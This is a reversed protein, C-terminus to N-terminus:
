IIAGREAVFNLEINRTLQATTYKLHGGRPKTRGKGAAAHRHVLMQISSQANAVARGNESQGFVSAEVVFAVLCFKLVWAIRMSTKM